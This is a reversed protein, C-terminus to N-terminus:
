DILKKIKKDVIGIGFIKFDFKFNIGDSNSNKRHAILRMRMKNNNMRFLHIHFEGSLLYQSYAEATFLGEKAEISANIAINLKAPIAVYDGVKLNQLAWKAKFPIHKPTYPKALLAEKKNRFQRVFLIESGSDINLSIPLDYDKVFNGPSLSLNLNWKDIRTYYNDQYSPEVEYKYKYSIGLGESVQLDLLKVDFGIDLSAIEEKIKEQIEAKELFDKIGANATSILSTSFFIGVFLKKINM